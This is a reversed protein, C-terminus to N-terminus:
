SRDPKQTPRTSRGRMSSGSLTRSPSTSMPRAEAALAAEVAEAAAPDVILVMGLGMNFTKLAEAESLNAQECAFRVVSPIPWTGLDVEANVGAPLARNLPVFRCAMM